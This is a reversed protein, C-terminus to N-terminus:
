DGEKKNEEETLFVYYGTIRAPNAHNGMKDRLAILHGSHKVLFPMWSEGIVRLADEPSKFPIWTEKISEIAEKLSKFTRDFVPDFDIEETRDFCTYCFLHHNEM